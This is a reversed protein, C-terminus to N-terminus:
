FWVTRIRTRKKNLPDRMKFYPLFKKPSDELSLKGDDASMVAALATFAKTASGIAFLTHPTVPIRKEFDKVGMGKMYIVKDDKVIVLSAGPIGLEMRKGEVTKEVAALQTALESGAVAITQKPQQQAAVQPNLPPSTALNILSMMLLTRHKFKTM